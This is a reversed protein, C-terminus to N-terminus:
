HLYIEIRRNQKREAPTPNKIKPMTNGFGVTKIRQADVNMRMLALKISLARKESLIFNNEITGV